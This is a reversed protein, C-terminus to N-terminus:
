RAPRCRLSNHAMLSIPPLRRPTGCQVLVYNFDSAGDFADAVSVLKYNNFYEVAFKAADVVETKQPFYDVDAAYDEVCGDTLNADLAAAPLLSTLLLIFALLASKM